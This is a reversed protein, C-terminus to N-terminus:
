REVKIPQGADISKLIAELGAVGAVIDEVPMVYPANAEIARAFAELELRETRESSYHKVERPKDILQVTLDWTPLHEIAGVEAMGGTGFFQMRWCEASAIVMGLYGTAGNQFRYLVSTTDDVGQDLVQRCSQAYVQDIPGALFIMADMNHVGRGTLGGGPSESRDPRWHEPAYRFVSPGNFNGEIHLLKGLTGDAFLRKIELLAPQFRWNFGLALTVKAERCADLARLADPKNLTFPKEVFVHKGAQAARTILDVHSRHPTTIVVADIQPDRLVADVEAHLPFGHEAAFAQAKEPTRTAGAVFRIQQSGRACTVMNQGWRGLGIIAARIM